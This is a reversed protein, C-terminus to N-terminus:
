LYPLNFARVLFVAMQARRVLSDPCYIVTGCGGTFGEAALQKIWPAAWHTTPVRVHDGANYFHSSRDLTWFGHASITNCAVIQIPSGGGGAIDDIYYYGLDLPSATTNYLEVWDVGDTAKPFIDNIFVQGAILACTSAAQISTLQIAFSIICLIGVILLFRPTKGIINM